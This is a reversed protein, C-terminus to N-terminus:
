VLLVFKEAVNEAYSQRRNPFAELEMLENNILKEVCWVGDGRKCVEASRKEGGVENTYSTYYEYTFEVKTRSSSPTGSKRRYITNGKDPSEYIYSM